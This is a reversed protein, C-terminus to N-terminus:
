EVASDSTLAVGPEPWGLEVLMKAATEAAEADTFAVLIKM